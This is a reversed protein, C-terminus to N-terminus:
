SLRASRSGSATPTFSISITRGFGEAITGGGGGATIQFDGSNSGTITVSSIVLPATGVSAVTVSPTSSPSGVAMAGFNLSTPTVSLSPLMPPTGTGTLPVSHPSGAANSIITLTATRSGATTPLFHVEIACSGGAPIPATTCSQSIPFDTASAGAVSVES